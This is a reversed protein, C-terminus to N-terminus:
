RAGVARRGDLREERRDEIRNRTPVPVLQYRECLVGLQVDNEAGFKDMIRQRRHQFAGPGISLAIMIQAPKMGRAMCTLVALEHDTLTM